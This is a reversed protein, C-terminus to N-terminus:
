KLKTNKIVFLHQARMRLMHSMLAGLIPIILLYFYITMVLPMNFTTNWENPMKVSFRQTEEFYPVTQSIVVAECIIGLPILVISCSYRMWTLAYISYKLIVSINNAYRIVEILSWMFLVGFTCPQWQIRNEFNIIFLIFTRGFSVLFSFFTSGKTFGTLCHIGESYMFLQLLNIMKGVVNFASVMSYTGYHYFRIIIIVLVYLFGLFQLLNHLILYIKKVQQKHYKPEM